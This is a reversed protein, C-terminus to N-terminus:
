VHLLRVRSSLLCVFSCHRFVRGNIFSPSSFSSVSFYNAHFTKSNLQLRRLVYVKWRNIQLLSPAILLIVPVAMMTTKDRKHPMVTHKQQPASVLGTHSRAELSKRNVTFLEFCATAPGYLSPSTPTSFAAPFKRLRGVNTACRSFALFCLLPAKPSPAPNRM